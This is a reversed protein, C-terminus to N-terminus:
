IKEYARNSRQSNFNPTNPLSPRPSSNFFNNNKDLLSTERLKQSINYSETDRKQQSFDSIGYYPSASKTLHPQPQNSKQRAVDEPPLINYYEFKKPQAFTGSPYLPPLKSDPNNM